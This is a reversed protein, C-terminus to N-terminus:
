RKLPYIRDSCQSGTEGMPVHSICRYTAKAQQFQPKGTWGTVPGAGAWLNAVVLGRTRPIGAVSTATTVERIKIGDAYWRISDPSWEFAYLHDGRSTDFWLPVSVGDSVGDRFYNLYVARPNRAVFEFDIEDHPDGWYAGTYTFFSSVAGYASSATLVAEYRGYGYTGQRQFESGTYPSAGRSKRLGLTMGNEDFRINDPDYVIKIWDEDMACDALYQTKEDFGRRLDTIFAAGAAAKRGNRAPDAAAPQFIWHGSFALTAALGIAMGAAVRATTLSAM